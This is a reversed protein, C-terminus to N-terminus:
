QRQKDRGKGGKLKDKDAGGELLDRGPGGFLRDRGSEGRLRDKGPGGILTDAGAGGCVLDDGQIGDVTDNGSLGVYVDRDGTGTFSDDGATGVLTPTVGACLPAPFAEVAGADCRGGVPRISGRQDEGPCGTAIQNLALSTSLPQQTRTSGGNFRLPGLGPDSNVLDGLGPSMGCSNATEVNGGASLFGLGGCNAAGGGATNFGLVSGRLAILTGAGSDIGGGGSDASNVTMTVHHFSTTGPSDLLGLGGGGCEAHNSSVTSNLLTLAGGSPASHLIAGGKGSTPLVSLCPGDARNENMTTRSIATPGRSALAGGSLARNAELTTDTLVLGGASGQIAGGSGVRAENGSLLSGTIQGGVSSSLAIAGAGGSGTSFNGRVISATLTLASGKQEIAGASSANNAALLSDTVVTAGPTSVAGGSGAQNATLWVRELILAGAAETNRVAGGDGGVKGGTITLDRLTLVVPNPGPVDLARDIGGPDICSAAGSCSGAGAGAITLSGTLDLDGQDGGDEGSSGISLGHVGAGLLVTDSGYSGSSTCGGSDADANAARVAERLSCPPSANLQDSASTVAITAAGAQDASTACIALVILGAAM